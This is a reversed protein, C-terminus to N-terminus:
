SSDAAWGDSRGVAESLEESALSPALRVLLDEAEEASFRLEAFHVEGLGGRARLRDIPLDPTRRSLLVVHLWPPLSRLFLGLSTMIADVGDVLHLDDVILVAADRHPGDLDMLLDAVADTSSRPGALSPAASAPVEVLDSLAAVMATWFQGADRDSEDLSLWATPVSTATCWDVLLSTKGSGAPAVVLTIPASGADDLLQLLRPRRLYHEPNAPRRLRARFFPSTVAAM